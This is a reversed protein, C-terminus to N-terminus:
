MYPLTPYATAAVSSLGSCDINATVSVYYNELSLAFAELARSQSELVPRHTVEVLKQHVKTEKSRIVIILDRARGRSILDNRTSKTCQFAGARPPPGTSYTM